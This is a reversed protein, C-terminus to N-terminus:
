RRAQRQITDRIVNAYLANAKRSRVESQTAISDGDPVFLTGDRPNPRADSPAVAEGSADRQHKRIDSGRRNRVMSSLRYTAARLRYADHRSLKQRDKRGKQQEEDAPETGYGVSVFKVM